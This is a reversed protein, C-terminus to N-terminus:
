VRRLPGPAPPPAGSGGARGGPPQQCADGPRSFFAKSFDQTTRPASYETFFIDVSYFYQFNFYYFQIQYFSYQTSFM